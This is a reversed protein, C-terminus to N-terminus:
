PRLLYFVAGTPHWENRPGYSNAAEITYAYRVGDFIEYLSVTNNARTPMVYGMLTWDDDPQLLSLIQSGNADINAYLPLSGEKRRTYLAGLVGFSHLGDVNELRMSEEYSTVYRYLKGNTNQLLPVMADNVSRSEAIRKKIEAEVEAKLDTDAIAESLPM